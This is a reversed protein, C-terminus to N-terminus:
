DSKHLGKKLFSTPALRTKERRHRSQPDPNLKADVLHTCRLKRWTALSCPKSNWTLSSTADRQGKQWRWDAIEQRCSERPQRAKDPEQWPRSQCVETQRVCVVGIVSDNDAGLVVVRVGLSNDNRTNPTDSLNGSDVELGAIPTDGRTGPHLAPSGPPHGFRAETALATYPQNHSSCVSLGEVHIVIGEGVVVQPLGAVDVVVEVVNARALQATRFLPRM